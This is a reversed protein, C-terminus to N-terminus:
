QIGMMQLERLKECSERQIGLNMSTNCVKYYYKKANSLSMKVGQGNNYLIALNYCAEIINQKCGKNFIKFAKEYDANDAYFTGLNVCYVDSKLDCTKKYYFEAKDGKLERLLDYKKYLIAAQYCDKANNATCSQELKPSQELYANLAYYISPKEQIVIKKYYQLAKTYDKNKVAMEGLTACANEDGLNCLNQYITNHTDLDNNKYAVNALAYCAESYGLDCSKQYYIRANNLDSSEYEGAVYYCVMKKKDNQLKSNCANEIISLDNPTLKNYKMIECSNIYGLSCAKVDYLITQNKFKERYVKSSNTKAQQELWRAHEYCSAAFGKNCEREFSTSCGAFVLALLSILLLKKM